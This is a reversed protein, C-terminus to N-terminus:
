SKTQSLGAVTQGSDLGHAKRLAVAIDQPPSVYWFPSYKLMTAVREQTATDFPNTTAILISRSIIDFPVICAKFCFEAPLLSAVDSDVDYISLPLYPLGSKEVLVSLIDDLKANQENVLLQV